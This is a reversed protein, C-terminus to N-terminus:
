VELIQYMPRTQDYKSLQGKRLDCAMCSIASVPLRGITSRINRHVHGCYVAQLSKCHQFAATLQEVPNREEFQFPDPIEVVDFPTHHMFVLSPRPDNRELERTAYELRQTCIRGKNSDASVTDLMIIRVPFDELTYQIFGDTTKLHDTFVQVMPVREDKNGPIVYYPARLDEMVEGAVQYEDDHANHSVDGTHIVLDPARANVADVTSKLDNLRGPHELSIHSDSIHAIRM